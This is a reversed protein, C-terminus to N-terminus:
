KLRTDMAMAFLSAYGHVYIEPSFCRSVLDRARRGMERAEGSHNLVWRIRNALAEVDGPSVLFGTVGDVILESIGGVRSGIVPTGCAMAEVVVRGLGESLSPLVLVQARAMHRALEEQSVHDQFTVSGNLGLREVQERLSQAHARDEPKGVLSLRAASAGGNVKALADLLFHVGKRRILVGACIIFNDDKQGDAGAALFVEIDTWTPFQCVFKGPAWHDLQARTSKSIARFMDAHRLSFSAARRMLVRYAGSAWIRRHLFLDAEFDGHSEVVLAVRRGFSEAIRKALAAAVGEYPSQAVLIQVQHRFILWLALLPGLLFMEAYRLGPMPLCPLLYFRAHQRFWRPWVDASFGIVFIRSLRTLLQFKKESTADLPTSYRTGGLFCVTM